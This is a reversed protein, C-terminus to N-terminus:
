VAAVQDAARADIDASQQTQQQMGQVGQAGSEVQTAALTTAAGAGAAKDAELFGRIM